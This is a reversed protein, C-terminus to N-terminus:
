SAISSGKNSTYFLFYYRLKYSCDESLNISGLTSGFVMKPPMSSICSSPNRYTSGTKSKPLPCINISTPRAPALLPTRTAQWSKIGSPTSFSCKSASNGAALKNSLLNTRDMSLM